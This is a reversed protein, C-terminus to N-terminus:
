PTITPDDPTSDTGTSDSSSDSSPGAIDDGSWTGRDHADTVATNSVNPDYGVKTLYSESEDIFATEGGKSAGSLDANKNAALFGDPDDNVASRVSGSLDANKNAALFGDPDDNVASRVSSTNFDANKNAALFGDPDDNIANAGGSAGGSSDDLRATGARASDAAAQSSRAWDDGARVSQAGSPGALGDHAPYAATGGGRAIDAASAEPSGETPAVSGQSAAMSGGRGFDAASAEPSGEVPAVSGQAAHDTFKWDDGTRATTADTAQRGAFKWDDGARVTQTGSTGGSADASRIAEAGSADAGGFRQPDAPIATRSGAGSADDVMAPTGSALDAQSSRTAAAAGALAFSKSMRQDIGLTSLRGADGMRLASVEDASLDFGRLAGAPDSNLQRRFGADSIARQVVKALAEKSM